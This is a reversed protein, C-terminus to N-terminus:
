RRRRDDVPFALPLWAVSSVDPRSLRWPREVCGCSVLTWEESQPAQDSPKKKNKKKDDEGEEQEFVMVSQCRSTVVPWASQSMLNGFNKFQRGRDAKKKKRERSSDDAPAVPIIGLNSLEEAVSLCGPAEQKGDPRRRAPVRETCVDARVSRAPVVMCATSQFMCLPSDKQDGPLSATRGGTMRLLLMTTPDM